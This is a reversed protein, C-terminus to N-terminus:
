NINTARGVSFDPCVPIVHPLVAFCTDYACNRLPGVVLKREVNLKTLKRWKAVNM